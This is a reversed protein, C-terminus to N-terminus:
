HMATIVPTLTIRETTNPMSQKSGIVGNIQSNARRNFVSLILKSQLDYETIDSPVYIDM